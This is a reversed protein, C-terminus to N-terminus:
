KNCQYNPNALMYKGIATLDDDDIAGNIVQDTNYQPLTKPDEGMHRADIALDLLTYEGSNNVDKLETDAIKIIAQGCETDALDKEMDVGNSVRGKTVDVLADGSVIGQFNLKLLTKKAEVTNTLGKSALIIRLEGDNEQSNVLKIGDIEDMGLFKLKTNDYKIRVDEAAINTINNITLDVTVTENLNINNKEPEINVVVASSTTPLPMPMNPTVNVICRVSLNSGDATTATIIAQGERIAKLEGRSDVTVITSNSSNWIVNNYIEDTPKIMVVLLDRQGIVLYDDTKNLVLTGNIKSNTALEKNSATTVAMALSSPLLLCIGIFIILVSFVALMSSCLFHPKLFIPM